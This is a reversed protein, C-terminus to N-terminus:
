TIYPGYFFCWFSMWVCVMWWCWGNLMLWGGEVDMTTRVRLRGLRGQAIAEQEGQATCTSPYFEAPSVGLEFEERLFGVIVTSVVAQFELRCIKFFLGNKFKNVLKVVVIWCHDKAFFENIYHIQVGSLFQLTKTYNQAVQSGLM